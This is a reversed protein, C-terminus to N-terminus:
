CSSRSTQWSYWRQATQLGGFHTLLVGGDPGGARARLESPPLHPRPTQWNRWRDRKEGGASRCSAVARVQYKRPLLLIPRFSGGRAPLSAAGHGRLLLVRLSTLVGGDSATGAIAEQLSLATVAAKLDM